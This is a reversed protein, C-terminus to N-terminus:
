LNVTLTVITGGGDHVDVTVTGGVAEARRRMSALGIGRRSPQRRQGNDIVAVTLKRDELSMRVDIRDAGSHKLANGVAEQVIRYVELSVADPLTGWDTGAPQSEYTLVAASAAGQKAVYYRLVEDLSAYAFEPPMLEHSIRRVSERCTEILSATSSGPMEDAVKMGIALLDNCVGDHLERAMRERETELGEVYQRTLQRGVDARLRSFEMERELRRRRQRSAYVVFAIVLSLLGALAVLLWMLTKSRQAESRALALETEKTEYKVTLERLSEAKDRAYLTDRVENGKLLTEYAQRYDGLAAYSLHMNNYCDLQVFPLADIGDLDLIKRFYGIAEAHNGTRLKVSCEVQYYVLRAMTSDVDDFMKRCVGRWRAAADKDGTREAILLAYAAARFGSEVDGADIANTYALGQYHMAAPLQGVGTLVSGAVGYIQSKIAPDDARAVWDGALVAYRAAEDKHAMDLNLVALNIYLSAVEEIDDASPKDGLAGSTIVDLAASYRELAEDVRGLSRLFVGQAANTGIIQGPLRSEVALEVARAGVIAASDTRGIAHLSDATARLPAIEEINAATADLVSFSLLVAFFVSKIM